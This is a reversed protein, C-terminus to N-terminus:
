SPSCTRRAARELRRLAPRPAVVLARDPRGRGPQVVFETHDTGFRAAVTRAYRDSTSAEDDEFGITFTRVPRRSLRAMFAVVIASDIGGSLFAGLPVDAILAASSPTACRAPPGRPSRGRPRRRDARAAPAPCRFAGLVREVRSPGSGRRVDARAGAPRQAIGAFFTRPTPVYGFTLYAPIADSTSSARSAGPRALM